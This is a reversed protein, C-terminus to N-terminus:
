GQYARNGSYSLMGNRLGPLEAKFVSLPKATSPDKKWDEVAEVAHRASRLDDLKEQVALWEEYGNLTAVPKGYRTIM